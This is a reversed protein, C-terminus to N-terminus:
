NSDSRRMRALSEARAKIREDRVMTDALKNAETAEEVQQQLAKAATVSQALATALRKRGEIGPTGDDAALLRAQRLYDQRQDEYAQAREGQVAYVPVPVAEGTVPDVKTEYRAIEELETAIADAKRLLDAYQGAILVQERHYESAGAGLGTQVRIRPLMARVEDAVFEAERAARHGPPIRELKDAVARQREPPLATLKLPPPTWGDPLEVTGPVDRFPDLALIGDAIHQDEPAIHGSTDPQSTGISTIEARLGDSTESTM